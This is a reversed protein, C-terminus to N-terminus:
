DRYIIYKRDPLVERVKRAQKVIFEKVDGDWEYVSYGPYKKVIVDYSPQETIEIEKPANEEWVYVAAFSTSLMEMSFTLAIALKYLKKM